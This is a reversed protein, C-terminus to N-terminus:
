WIAIDVGTDTGAVSANSDLCGRSAGRLQLPIAPRGPYQLVGTLTLTTANLYHANLSENGNSDKIILTSRDPHFPKYTDRFAPNEDFGNKDLRVIVKNHADRVEMLIAITGNLTRDLTLVDGIGRISLVRHPFQRVVIENDGLFLKVADYPVPSRCIEAPSDEFGPYLEGHLKELDKGRKYDILQVSGLGWLFLVLMTVGIQLPRDVVYIKRRKNLDSTLRQCHKSNWWLAIGWFMGTSWLFITMEVQDLRLMFAALTFSIGVLWNAHKWRLTRWYFNLIRSVFASRRFRRFM